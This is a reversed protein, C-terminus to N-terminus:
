ITLVSTFHLVISDRGNSCFIEIIWSIDSGEICWAVSYFRLISHNVLCLGQGWPAQRRVLSVFSVFLSYVVLCYASPLVVFCPLPTVALLSNWCAPCYFGGEPHLLPDPCTCLALAFAKMNPTHTLPVTVLGIDSLLSPLSLPLLIFHVLCVSARRHLSRCAM